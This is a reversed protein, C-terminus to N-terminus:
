TLPRGSGSWTRSLITSSEFLPARGQSMERMRWTDFPQTLLIKPLYKSVPVTRGLAMPPLLGRTAVGSTTLFIAMNLRSHGDINAQSILSRSIASCTQSLSPTGLTLIWQRTIPPARRGGDALEELRGIHGSTPRWGPLGTSDNKM